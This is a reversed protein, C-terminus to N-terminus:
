IDSVATGMDCSTLRAGGDSPRRGALTDSNSQGKPRKKKVRLVVVSFWSAIFNM